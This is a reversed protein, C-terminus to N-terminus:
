KSGPEPKVGEGGQRAPILILYGMLGLGVLVAALSVYLGTLPPQFKFEVRHEGPQGLFVGRMIFNCRLLKAPQGDVTVQWNPDFKDNLLLVAPAATQAKLVIHKPAYSEFKVKGATQNTGGPPPLPEALLVTQAPDFAPDALEKLTALNTNDQNALASGMEAPMRAQIDKVWAQLKAPENTSVKWNSYLSARPLAGTFDFVAFQGNTNMITTIQQGSSSDQSEPKATLDFRTAVRMRKQATDIQQNFLDLLPLPGLLYRTNSLEWRRVPAFAMVAEFAAKDAAVRPEQVIDLSQINYYPFLHQTWEIGYLQAFGYYQNVLPRLERPLGNLNVFRDLPFIAVRQEYPRTRLFDIVPSPEYKERWNYTVVWRLDVRALDVVLLVGLLLGGTRARRGSFYGSLALTFLGVSLALFLVFWGVQGLSFTAITKAMAEDFQVEQLYALVRAQASGYILWGLLSAGLALACGITWKRDFPSVKAWWAQLQSVLDRTAVAPVELHRRSLGYIGHAFIILLVWQFVHMFKGPNRITSAYPLAYFFQYFPAFRGFSMLLSVGAVGTLFWILQRQNPAFVSNEKRLSQFVTWLAVLALLVGTYCGGGGYRMFGRPPAGQKGSAFYRDWAPDRGGKGWYNGGDPTDMRFGFLGPVVIGLTEAKPFSWQTAWDWREQKSRSDQEAGAVGQVQTGILTSLAAAAVLGAFAGIIVVRGIGVAFNKVTNGGALLAHVVVCIATVVSFIAGIDFAEMVGMGVALGALPYRIWPRLPQPSVVAALALYNLGFCLAQSGVGWCSVGFFDSCLATALGGLIAALSGLGLQRFFFWASAGLFLLTFPAYFKAFGLPGVLWLFGFTINPSAGTDRSGYGNLDAWGGTFLAPVRTHAANMAGLPGDNAFVVWSPHFGRLFLLVLLVGLIAAFGALGAFRPSVLRTVVPPKLSM